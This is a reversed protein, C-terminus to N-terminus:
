EDELGGLTVSINEAIAVYNSALVEFTPSTIVARKVGANKLRSLLEDPNIDRGLKSKQWLVYDAVAANVSNQIAVARAEDARNLYYTVGVDFNVVEPPAVFVNDTLPRVTRDDCAAEVIDLMEQGPIGGDVLLPTILVAGPNPTLVDVDKILVSARKAIHVYEGSPGAVSYREPAKRIAERLSEDDEVDAGGESITVNTMGSVYPVPDVITNIEGVMYGNGILGKVTCTAPVTAETEGALITVDHDLAFFVNNGATTRTGGPVNTAVARVESLTIKTTTVAAKSGIREVGVLVGLHDLNGGEAYRLLNQKGTYNIKNCLMIVINTIVNLFLRVPDGQALSRGTITTYLNIIYTLIEQEDASVFEIDPLDSLKM